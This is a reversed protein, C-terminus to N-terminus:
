ARTSSVVQSITNVATSSYFTYVSKSLAYGIKRKKPPNGFEINKLLDEKEKESNKSQYAELLSRPTKFTHVIASAKEPTLMNLQILQKAFVDTVTLNKSKSSASTFDEYLVNTLVRELKQSNNLECFNKTINSLFTTTDEESSTRKRKFM